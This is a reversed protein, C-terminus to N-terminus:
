SMSLYNGGLTKTTTIVYVHGLKLIQKALRQWECNSTTESLAHLKIEDTRSSAILHFRKSYQLGKTAPFWRDCITWRVLPWYHSCKFPYATSCVNSHDTIESAGDTYHGVIRGVQIYLFLSRNSFFYHSGRVKMYKLSASSDIDWMHYLVNINM